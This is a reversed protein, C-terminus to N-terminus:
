DPLPPFVSHRKDIFSLFGTMNTLGSSDLVETPALRTCARMSRAEMLGYGM